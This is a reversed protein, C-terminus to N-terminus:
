VERSISNLRPMVTNLITGTISGMVVGSVILVPLYAFAAANDLIVSIAALQGINHFVAGAVSLAMYSVKNKLLTHLVIIVLLSLIGGTLSLAAATVGGRTIFVSFAKLINLTFAQKKGITFLAYMTVINGLGMRIGPFQTSIPPLASELVSLVIVLALMFASRTLKKTSM